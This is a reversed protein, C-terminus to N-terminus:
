RVLDRLVSTMTANCALGRLALLTKTNEVIKPERKRLDRRAHGHAKSKRSTKLKM